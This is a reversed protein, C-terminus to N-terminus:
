PASTDGEPKQYVWLDTEHSCEIAQVPCRAACIGCCICRQWELEFDIETDRRSVQLCRIPCATACLGCATCMHRGEQDLRLSPLGRFALDPRTHPHRQLARRFTIIMAKGTALINELPWARLTHTM